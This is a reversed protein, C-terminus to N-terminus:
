ILDILKKAFYPESDLEKYASGKKEFDKGDFTIKRVSKLDHMLCEVVWKKTDSFELITDGFYEKIKFNFDDEVVDLEYGENVLIPTLIENIETQTKLGYFQIEFNKMPIQKFNKNFIMLLSIEKM